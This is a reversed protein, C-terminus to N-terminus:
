NYFIIVKCIYYNPLSECMTRLIFNFDPYWKVSIPLHKKQSMFTGIVFIPFFTFFFNFCERLPRDFISPFLYFTLYSSM